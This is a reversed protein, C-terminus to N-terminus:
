AIRQKPLLGKFQHKAVSNMLLYYNANAESIRIQLSFLPGLLLLQLWQDWNRTGHLVPISSAGPRTNLTVHKCHEKTCGRSRVPAYQINACSLHKNRNTSSRIVHFSVSDIAASMIANVM